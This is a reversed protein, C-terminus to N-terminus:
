PGGPSPPSPPRALRRLTRKMFQFRERLPKGEVQHIEDLLAQDSVSWGRANAVQKLVALMDAGSFPRAEDQEAVDQITSPFEAPFQITVIRLWPGLEQDAYKALRVIFSLTEPPLPPKPDVPFSDFVFLRKQKREEIATKVQDALKEAWRQASEVGKEELEVDVGIRRLIEAALQDPNVLADVEFQSTVFGRQRAIHQALYFSFSKGTQPDGRIMLLPPGGAECLDRLVFRLDERNAFPRNGDLLVEGFPDATTPLLQVELQAKIVDLEAANAATRPIADFIPKIWGQNMALDVIINVASRATPNAPVAGAWVGPRIGEVFIQFNGVFTLIPFMKEVNKVLIDRLEM